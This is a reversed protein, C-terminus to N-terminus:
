DPEDPAIQHAYYFAEVARFMQFNDVCCNGRLSLFFALEERPTLSRLYWGRKLEEPTIPHPWTLYHEDSRQNFGLSTAEINFREGAGDDWRCFAHEKAFVLKIPYGLRRGVAAYLVPTTVCTGGHGSLLGHIFLNRSDSADYEGEMFALNYRVGLDRQLVTVMVLIRFRAESYERFCLERTRRPLSRETLRRVMEAWDDVKGRLAPIDFCGAQPLDFAAALNVEAL